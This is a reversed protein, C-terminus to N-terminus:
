QGWVIKMAETMKKPRTLLHGYHRGFSALSMNEILLMKMRRHKELPAETKSRKPQIFRLKEYLEDVVDGFSPDINVADKVSMGASIEKVPSIEATKGCLMKFDHNSVTLRKENKPYYSPFNKDSYIGSYIEDSLVTIPISIRVDESSSAIDINFRSSATVFENRDIDYYSFDKSALCLTIMKEEGPSLTVKEFYKLERGPRFVRRDTDSLYVQVVESATRKGTNKVYFSIDVNGDNKLYSCSEGYYEFESYTLGHGFPYAPKKAGLTFYKYGSLVSESFRINEETGCYKYSPYDEIEYPISKNLRGSPSHIGYIIECLAEASGEGCLPDYIIADTYESFDIAPVAPSTIVAIIKKGEAKLNILFEKQGDPIRDMRSFENVSEFNNGMFLIFVDESEKVEQSYIDVRPFDGLYKGESFKNIMTVFPNKVANVYYRGTIQVFPEKANKGVINLKGSKELPLIGDNKLLVFCERAANKSITYNVEKDHMFNAKSNAKVMKSAKVMKDSLASVKEESLKGESVAESLIKRTIEPSNTMEPLVGAKVAKVPDAGSMHPSFIIGGFASSKRMRSVLKEDECFSKGNIMGGPAVIGLPRTRRIFGPLDKEYVEKMMRLDIINNRRKTPVDNEFVGATDMVVSVGRTKIGSVFGEAMKMAHLIDESYSYAGKASLPDRSPVPGSIIAISVNNKKLDEGVASGVRSALVTDFSCGLANATPYSIERDTEDFTLFDSIESYGNQAYAMLYGKLKDSVASLRNVSSSSLINIKKKLDTNKEACM